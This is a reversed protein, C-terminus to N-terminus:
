FELLNVKLKSRKSGRRLAIKLDRNSLKPNLYLNGLNLKINRFDNKETSLWTNSFFDMASLPGIHNAFMTITELNSKGQIRHGNVEFAIKIAKEHQTPRRFMKVNPNVYINSSSKRKNKFYNQLDQSTTGDLLNARGFEEIVKSCKISVREDRNANYLNEDSTNNMSGLNYNLKIFDKPLLYFYQKLDDQVHIFAFLFYNFSHRIRINTIAFTEEGPLDDLSSVSTKIEYYNNFEDKADGMKIKSKVRELLFDQILKSCISNGYKQTNKEINLYILIELPLNIDVSGKKQECAKRAREKSENFTM